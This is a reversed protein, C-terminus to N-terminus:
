NMIRLLRRKSRVAKRPRTGNFAKLTLCDLYIFPRKAYTFQELGKGLTFLVPKRQRKNCRLRVCIGQMNYKPYYKKLRDVVEACFKELVLTIMLKKARTPHTESVEKRYKGLSRYLFFDAYKFYLFCNNKKFFIWFHSFDELRRVNLLNTKGLFFKAKPVLFRYRQKNKRKFFKSIESITRDIKQKRFFYLRKKLYRLRSKSFKRKKLKIKVKNTIRTKFRIRLLTFLYKFKKRKKM